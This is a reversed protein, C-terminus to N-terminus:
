AEKIQLDEGTLFYHLNQLRHVYEPTNDCLAYWPAEQSRKYLLYSNETISIRFARGNSQIIYDGDYGRTGGFRVLWEETLQIPNINGCLDDVENNHKGPEVHAIYEVYEDDIDLTILCVQRVIQKYPGKGFNVQNMNGALILNGIRLEKVDIAV